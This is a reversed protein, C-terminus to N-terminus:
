REAGVERSREARQIQLGMWHLDLLGILRFLGWRCSPQTIGYLDLGHRIDGVSLPQPGNASHQRYGRLADWVQHAVRSWLGLTPANDLADIQHGAKQLARLQKIEGGFSHQWEAWAVLEKGRRGGRCDM